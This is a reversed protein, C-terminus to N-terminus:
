DERHWWSLIEEKLQTAESLKQDADVLVDSGPFHSNDEFWKEIASREYTRLAHNFSFHNFSCSQLLM